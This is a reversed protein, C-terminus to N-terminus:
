TTRVVLFYHTAAAPDIAATDANFYRLTITDDAAAVAPSVFYNFQVGAGTVDTGVWFVMDGAKVGTLTVSQSGSSHANVSPVNVSVSLIEVSASRWGSGNYYEVTSRDENYRLDAEVPSGPRQAITSRPLILTGDGGLKWPATVPAAGADAQITSTAGPFPHTTDPAAGAASYTTLIHTASTGSYVSSAPTQAHMSSTAPASSSPLEYVKEASADGPLPPTIVKLQGRMPIYTSSSRGGTGAGNLVVSARPSVGSELTGTSQYWTYGIWWEDGNTGPTWVWGGYHQLVATFTGVGHYRTGDYAVGRWVEGVNNGSGPNVADPTWVSGDATDLAKTSQLFNEFVSVNLGSVQIKTTTTYHTGDRGTIGGVGSTSTRTKGGTLTFSSGVSPTSGSVTYVQVKKDAGASASAWGVVLLNTGDSGFGLGQDSTVPMAFSTTGAAALTSADWARLILNGASSKYAVWIYGGCRAVGYLNASSTGSVNSTPFLAKSRLITIPRSVSLEYLNVEGGLGWGLTLYTDTTTGNGNTDFDLGIIRSEDGMPSPLPDSDYEFTVTPVSPDALKSRLELVSGKDMINSAGQIVMNGLVTLGGTVVDGRFTPSKTPDTPISVLEAGDPAYLTIGSPGIEVRQGETATALLNTLIMIAALRDTTISGALIKEASVAEAAIDPGTVQRPFGSAEASASASGDADVAVIKVYYTTAGTPDLPTADPMHDIVAQSGDTTQSLTTPGPTFGTTTSVHVEYTVADANTVPTWEIFLAAIGGTVTPAPSTAPPSGDSAPPPPITDPDILTGDVSPTQGLIDEIVWDTGDFRATVAEGAGPDRIGEPLVDYWRHPVRAVVQEDDVDDRILYAVKELGTPDAQVYTDGATYSNVLTGSLTLIATDDDVATYTIVESTVGDTITASGGEEAFDYLDDLTVAGAGASVDVALTSGPIRDVVTEVRCLIVSEPTVAQSAM